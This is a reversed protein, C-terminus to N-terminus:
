VTVLHYGTAGYRQLIARQAWPPRAAPGPSMVIVTQHSMGTCLLGAHFAGMGLGYADVRQAARAVEALGLRVQLVDKAGDGEIKQAHVGPQVAGRVGV